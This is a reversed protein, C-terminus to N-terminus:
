QASPETASETFEITAGLLLADATLTDGGVDRSITFYIPRNATPTGGITVAGSTASIHMDNATILTDAGTTGETGLAQDIADDDVFCRAAVDWKVTGSGASATWHCKLTVTSADWTSPLTVWFGVTEETTQDFAMTDLMVKNTGLETTMPAAGSTQKPIMAGASIYTTRIVGTRTRMVNGSGTYAVSVLNKSGDTLVAQSATLGTLNLGAFQPSAGTHISQPLSLTISGSGNTVTIQNTTGTLTAKTLTNGTTNGILLQGDTYSTQGTGGRNVAVTGSALNAANLNTIGAGDGFFETATVSNISAETAILESANLITVVFSGTWSGASTATGRLILGTDTQIALQGIAAPTGASTAAANAFTQTAGKGLYGASATFTSGNVAGGNYSGLVNVSGDVNLDAATNIDDTANIFSNVNINSDFTWQGAFFDPSWDGANTGTSRYLTTTDLQFGLQGVASPVSAARAANNAFTTSGGGGGGGGLASLMTAADLYDVTNDANIRIYRVANPNAKTFLNIGVTSGGLGQRLQAATPSGIINGTNADAKVTVPRVTQAVAAIALTFLVLIIKM